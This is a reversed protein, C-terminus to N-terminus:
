KKFSRIHAVLAKVVEPKSKLDPNAPMLPSKGTAAGGEVIIKALEEDTVQAQWNPDTYDRPKPNLASAAPGDGKGSDGHCSVCRQAFIKKAEEAAGGSAAAAATKEGTATAAGTGGGDSKGSCGTALPLAVGALALTLILNRM